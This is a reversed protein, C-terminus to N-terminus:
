QFLYEHCMRKSATKSETHLSPRYLAQDFAVNKRLDESKQYTARHLNYTVSTKPCGKPGTMLPIAPCKVLGKFILGMSQRSVETVVM